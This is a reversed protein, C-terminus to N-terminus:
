KKVHVHIAGDEKMKKVADFVVDAALTPSGDAGGHHCVLCSTGKEDPTTLGLSKGKAKDYDKEHETKYANSLSGAGHCVECQIGEREAALKKTAESSDVKDVKPYGDAEGYGTTHCRVCREEKTYDKAPDLKFKEKAEKAQNPKLLEFAKAMRTDKWSRWQKLHCKKCSAAGVYSAKQEDGGHTREPPVAFTLCGVIVCLLLPSAVGRLM